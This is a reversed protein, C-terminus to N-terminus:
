ARRKKMNRLSIRCHPCTVYSIITKTAVTQWIAQKATEPDFDCQAGCLAPPCQGAGKIHNSVAVSDVAHTYQHNRAKAAILMTYRLLFHLPIEGAQNTNNVNKSSTKWMAM